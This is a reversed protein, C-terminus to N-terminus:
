WYPAHPRCKQPSGSRTELVESTGLSALIPLGYDTDSGVLAAMESVAPSDAGGDVREECM